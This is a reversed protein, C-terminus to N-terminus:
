RRARPHGGPQGSLPRAVGGEGGPRPEQPGSLAEAPMEVFGTIGPPKAPVFAGGGFRVFAGKQPRFSRVFAGPVYLYSFILYSRVLYLCRPPTSFDFLRRLGPADVAAGDEAASRGKPHCGPRSRSLFCNPGSPEM